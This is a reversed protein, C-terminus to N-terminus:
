AAGKKPAHMQGLRTCARDIADIAFSIEEEDAILPPLLRVVNDGASPALVKEARLEDVM